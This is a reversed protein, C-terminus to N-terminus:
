NLLGKEMLWDEAATRAQAKESGEVRDRLAILDETTLAASVEDLVKALKESYIDSNLLPVVNQAAILNEPDELVLLKKAVLDPSTTFIDAVQVANDVLAKVTDPGGFDEIPVFTVDTIGYVSKLGPIGYPLEAIQPSAGLAFPEIKKLDGISVLGEKEALEQTVVYADKDEAPSSTLVRFGEPVTTELEADVEATSRATNETDYFFLLNGNYEPMLSISGDELAPITTQRPGLNFKTEVEYGANELALAYINGLIESEPFAFSGVVIKTGDGSDESSAGTPDSTACGALAVMAGAAVVAIAVRPGRSNATFM